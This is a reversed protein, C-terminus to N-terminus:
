MDTGPSRLRRRLSCQRKGWRQRDGSCARRGVGLSLHAIKSDTVRGADGVLAWVQGRGWNGAPGGWVNVGGPDGSEAVGPAPEQIWYAVGGMNKRFMSESCRSAGAGERWISTCMSHVGKEQVVCTEAYPGRRVRQPGSSGGRWEDPHAASVM